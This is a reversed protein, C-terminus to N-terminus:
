KYVYLKSTCVQSLSGRVGQEVFMVMDIDSLLDLRVGIMKLACDWTFGPTTQYHAPDLGYAELSTQRFNEFVEALLFCDM